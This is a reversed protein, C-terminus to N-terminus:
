WRRWPSLFLQRGRVPRAEPRRPQRPLRGHVDVEPVTFALGRDTADNNAGHQWPPFVYDPFGSTTGEAARAGSAGLAMACGLLLTRITRTM